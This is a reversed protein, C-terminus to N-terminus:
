GWVQTFSHREAGFGLTLWEATKNVGEHEQLVGRARVRVMGCIPSGANPVGDITNAGITVIPIVGVPPIYYSGSATATPYWYPMNLKKCVAYGYITKGITGRGVVSQAGPMKSLVLAPNSGLGVPNSYSDYYIAAHVPPYNTNNTM